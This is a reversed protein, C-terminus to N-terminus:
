PEPACQPAALDAALQALSPGWRGDLTQRYVRFGPFWPSEAGGHMWRWEAPNPVLVRAPRGCAARLHMNTNSVGAYDDILALLALLTELDENLASLDVVKRGAAAALAATEEPLPHRQLSLLTGPAGHLAAGFETLPVSKELVWHAGRQERAAIGARWTVGLHPGPGADQLIKRARALADDLPPIRLPPAPRPWYVRIGAAYDRLADSQAAPLDPCPCADTSSLAGPLDGCLMQLGETAPKGEDHIVVDDAIGSRAVFEAIKASARVAVHAGRRRLQGAHRLFFLEDGIGQEPWLTIRCGRLDEPLTQQLQLEPRAAHVGIFAQRARYHQWGDGLRGQALDIASRLQRLAIDDPALQEARALQRLSAQLLGCEALAGGHNRIDSASDPALEAARSFARLAGATDGRFGRAAGLFRHAEPLTPAFGILVLCEAEAETCRGADILASVLNLRPAPAQPEARICARYSACAEELRSQRHQASGLSQLIQADDPALRLAARLVTEADAPRGLELLVNGLNLQIDAEDPHRRALARLVNEAEAAKGQRILLLAANQTYPWYQPALRSARQYAKHADDLRGAAAYAQALHGLWHPNRKNMGAAQELAAIAADQQGLQLLGIGLMAQAAGDSGPALALASRCHDVAAAWEGRQLATEAAGLLQDRWTM